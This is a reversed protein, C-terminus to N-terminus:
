ENGEQDSNTTQLLAFGAAQRQHCFPGLRRCYLSKLDKKFRLQKLLNTTNLIPHVANAFIFFLALTRKCFHLYEPPLTSASRIL